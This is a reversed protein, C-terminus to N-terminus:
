TERRDTEHNSIPLCLVLAINKRALFYILNAYTNSCMQPVKAARTIAETIVIKPQYFKSNLNGYRQALVRPKNRQKIRETKLYKVPSDLVILNEMILASTKTLRSFYKTQLFYPIRFLYTLEGSTGVKQMGTPKVHFSLHKNQRASIMM